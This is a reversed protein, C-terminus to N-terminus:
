HSLARASRRRCQFSNKKREEVVMQVRWLWKRHGRPWGFRSARQGGYAILKIKMENREKSILFFNKDMWLRFFIIRRLITIEEQNKANFFAIPSLFLFPVSRAFEIFRLCVPSCTGTLINNKTPFGILQCKNKSQVLLTRSTGSVFFPHFLVLLVKPIKKKRRIQNSYM